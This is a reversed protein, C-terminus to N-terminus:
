ELEIIGTNFEYYRGKLNMLEHHEGREIILGNELVLIANSHRVTSLRHAIAFVTRDQMIEDMGQGILSETRTDVSSTAEDLILIPPDNVAARAISILQRQGQSLNLGDTTLMTDYGDNLQMILDHANAAKAAAIIEEDTADLRGYRINEKITDEFLHVDQLVMGLQHRLDQKKIDWIDIGDFYIHGKDIDYFRNILNTITTKGAGTTGVFALRQGPKAYFSVDKLVPDHTKDYGFSVNVFRLDGRLPVLCGPYRETFEADPLDVQRMKETRAMIAQCDYLTSPVYWYCRGKRDTVIKVQGEDTEPEEDLIDFIREAGALAAVIMNFQNAINTVPRSVNRTFNLYSALTGIDMAFVGNITMYSGIMAIISFVVYTLNGTLPFMLTAYTDAKTADKFLKENHESFDKITENEHNYVKIVKQGSMYEEIFGNLDALTAQRSRFARSSKSAVIKVAFYLLGLLVINIVSLIPSLIFMMVITGSFMLTSRVINSLSQGLAIAVNDVDNTMASMLDGHERRDFYKVPLTQIHSFVDHRINATTNEACYVFLRGAIYEGIVSLLYILATLLVQKALIAVGASAVLSNIIPRIMYNGLIAGLSSLGIVIIAIILFARYKDMYRFLRKVTSSTSRPKMRKNM